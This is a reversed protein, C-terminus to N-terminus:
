GIPTGWLVAEKEEALRKRLYHFRTQMDNMFRDHEEAREATQPHTLAKSCGYANLM